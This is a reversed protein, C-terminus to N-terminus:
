ARQMIEKSRVVLVLSLVTPVVFGALILGLTQFSGTYLHGALQLFIASLILRGGQLLASIRGKAEPRWNLALTYLLTTPLVEGIVFPMFSLTIWLPNTTKTAIAVGLTLLSFLFMLLSANLLRKHSFRSVLFGSALSGFAFVLAFSGQYFGFAKLSVGLDKLYLLPALGVFIWYPVIQVIINAGLLVLPKDQCLTSLRLTAPLKPTEKIRNRPILLLTLFLTACGLWLLAKFNGEAKFYLTIYSGLVPSLGISLNMIGNLVGMWFQQQKLPYLDAIILFSLIAPSAIGVGQLFRGLLLMSYYPSFVCLLSGCCFIFLGSVILPKRGWRDSLTGVVFLSLCYGIFNISLLAEVWFPSLSFRAQLEPFSPLFLDFEM